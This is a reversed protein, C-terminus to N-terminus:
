HLLTMKKTSTFTPTKLRYFYVGSAVASGANDKGNWFVRYNMPQKDEDVLTRVLRGTVDFVSLEVRDCGKHYAYIVRIGSKVGRGKLSRCAFKKAKFVPATTSGLDDIPFVGRNDLGLKHYIFLQRDIFKALDEELTNYKMLLRKFDREFEQLRVVERFKMRTM